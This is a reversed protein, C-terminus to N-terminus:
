IKGEKRLKDFLLIAAINSSVSIEGSEIKLLADEFPIKVVEIDEDEEPEPMRETLDTAVFVTVSGSMSASVYFEGIQKWNRAVLGAEERLEKKANELVSLGDEVHGAVTELLTKQLSDRFQSVLYIENSNSIPLVIVISKRSMIDKTFKKGDREIVTKDIRFYKSKFVNEKSIIKFNPM